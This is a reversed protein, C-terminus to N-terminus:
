TRDMFPAHPSPGQLKPTVTVTLDRDVAGVPILIDLAIGIQGLLEIVSVLVPPANPVLADQTHYSLGM